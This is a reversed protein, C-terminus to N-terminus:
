DARGGPDATQIFKPVNIRHLTCLCKALISNWYAQSPLIDVTNKHRLYRAKHLPYHVKALWLIRHSLKVSWSIILKGFIVRDKPFIEIHMTPLAKLQRHTFLSPTQANM